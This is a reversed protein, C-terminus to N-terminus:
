KRAIITGKNGVAVCITSSICSIGYLNRFTPSSQVLFPGGSLMRSITGTNGVVYCNQVGPCSIGNLVRTTGSNKMVWTVGGDTSAWVKNGPTFPSAYLGYCQLVGPCVATFPALQHEILGWAAGTATTQIVADAFGAHSDIFETGGARCRHGPLCSIWELRYPVNPSGCSGECPVTPPISQAAWTAGGNVTLYVALPNATVYCTNVGTCSVATPGAPVTHKVWTTGGNHTVLVTSPLAIAYCTLPGPCAIHSLTVASGLGSSQATWTTGGNRTARITSAAGVTYCRATTPCAIDYLAATTGSPRVKWPGAAVASSTQALLPTLAILCAVVAITSRKADVNFRLMALVRTDYLNASVPWKDLSLRRRAAGRM